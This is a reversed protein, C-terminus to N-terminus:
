TKREVHWQQEDTPSICCERRLSVLKFPAEWGFLIPSASRFADTQISKEFDEMNKWGRIVCFCKAREDAIGEVEEEEISWGYAWGLDKEAETAYIKDFKLFDAEISQKFEANLRSVPFWSQVYEVLPAAAPGDSRLISQDVDIHHLHRQQLETISQMEKTFAASASANEWESVVQFLKPDQTGVGAVINSNHGQSALRSIAQEITVKTEADAPVELQMIQLVVM